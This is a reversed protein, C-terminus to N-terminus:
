NKKKLYILNEFKKCINLIFDNFRKEELNSLYSAIRNIEPSSIIPFQNHCCLGCNELCRLKGKVIESFDFSKLLNSKDM